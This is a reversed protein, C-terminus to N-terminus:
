AEKDILEKYIDIYKDTIQQPIHHNNEAKAKKAFKSKVYKM